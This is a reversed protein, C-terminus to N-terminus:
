PQVVSLIAGEVLGEVARPRQDPGLLRVAADLRYVGEPLGQSDLEIVTRGPGAVESAASGLQVTAGGIRRAQVIASLQFPQDGAASALAASELDVGLRIQFPTAAPVTGVLAPVPAVVALERVRLGGSSPRAADAPRHRAEASPTPTAATPGAVAQPGPAAPAIGARTTVFEILEDTALGTWQRQDGSQVHWVRTRRVDGHDTLLEVTFNQYHQRNGDDDAVEDGSRSAAAAQDRAQGIWDQQAIREASMRPVGDLIAALEEPSRAALDGFTRVGARRLRREVGKGIGAIRQLNDGREDNAQGADDDGLGSADTEGMRREGKTKWV